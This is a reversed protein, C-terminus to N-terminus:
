EIVMDLEIAKEIRHRVLQDALLHIRARRSTDNLDEMPALADGDMLAAVAAAPVAGIGVVHRAGVPAVRFPRGLPEAAPAGRDAGLGLPQDDGDEGVPRMRLLAEAGAEADQPQELMEVRRPGLGDGGAGDRDARESVLANGRDDCGLEVAGLRRGGLWLRDDGM